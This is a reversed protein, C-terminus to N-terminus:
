LMVRAERGGMGEKGTKRVVPRDKEVCRTNNNHNHIMRTMRKVPM